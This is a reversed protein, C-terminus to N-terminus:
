GVVLHSEVVRVVEGSCCPPFACFHVMANTIIHGARGGPGVAPHRGKGLGFTGRGGRQRRKAEERGGRQRREAEERGGTKRREKKERGGTKREEREEATQRSFM